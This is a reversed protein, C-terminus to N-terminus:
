AGTMLSAELESFTQQAEQRKIDSLKRFTERWRNINDFALQISGLLPAIDDIPKFLCALAGRRMATLATAQSIMGTLVIVNVGGDRKKINTLLEMGNIGPMDIDLLIVRYNHKQLIDLAQNPDNLEAAEFGKKRLLTTVLRTIAPDDDIHLIPYRKEAM